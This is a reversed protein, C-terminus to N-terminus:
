FRAVPIFMKIDDFTDDVRGAFRPDKRIERLVPVVKELDLDRHLRALHGLCTIALMVVEENVNSAFQLCVDQVYRWDSEHFALSLLARSIKEPSGTSLALEAEERSLPAVNEYKM